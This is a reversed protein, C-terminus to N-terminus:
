ARHWSNFKLEMIMWCQSAASPQPLNRRRIIMGDHSWEDRVRGEMKLTGQMNRHFATVVM